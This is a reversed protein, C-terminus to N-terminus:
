FVAESVIHFHQWKFVKTLQSMQVLIIQYNSANLVIIKCFNFTSFNTEIYIQFKLFNPSQFNLVKIM